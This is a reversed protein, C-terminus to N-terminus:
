ATSVQGLFYGDSTQCSNGYYSSGDLSLALRTYNTLHCERHGIPTSSTFFIPNTVWRREYALLFFLNIFSLWTNFLCSTNRKWISNM